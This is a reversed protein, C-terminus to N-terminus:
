AGDAPDDDRLGEFERLEEASLGHLLAQLGQEPTREDPPAILKLRDALWLIVRVNGSRVEAEIADHLTERLGALRDRPPTPWPRGPAAPASGGGKAATEVKRWRALASRSCGLQRAAETLTAGKALLDSALQRDFSRARTRRPGGDPARTM